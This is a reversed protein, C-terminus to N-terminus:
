EERVAYAGLLLMRARAGRDSLPLLLESYVVPRESLVVRPSHIFPARKSLARQLPEALTARIDPALEQLYLGTTERGFRRILGTGCLRFHFDNAGLPEIIALQGIWSKLESVPIDRRAPMDGAGRKANWYELLRRLKPHLTSFGPPREGTPASGIAHEDHSGNGNRHTM